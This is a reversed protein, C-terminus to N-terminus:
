RGAGAEFAARADPPLFPSVCRADTQWFRNVSLVHEVLTSDQNTKLGTIEHAVTAPIFLVEGERLTLHIAKPLAERLRPFRVFDPKQLTVQSFAWSMGDTTSPFPYLGSRWVERPFLTIAKSGRLQLLTGDTVDVHLPETHGPAGWWMNIIPGYTQHLGLGTAKALRALGEELMAAAPSNVLPSQVYCDEEAAMGAAITEGFRRATLTVVHKAHSRGSWRLPSTAYGGGGHIRCQHASEPGLLEIFRKLRWSGTPPSDLAGEIILPTGQSRHREFIAPTLQSLHIRKVADSICALPTQSALPTPSASPRSQLPSALQSPHQRWRTKSWARNTSTAAAMRSAL